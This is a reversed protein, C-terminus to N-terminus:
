LNIKKIIKTKNSAYMPLRQKMTAELVGLRMADCILYTLNYITNSSLQSPISSILGHVIFLIIYLLCSYYFM